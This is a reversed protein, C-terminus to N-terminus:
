YPQLLKVTVQGRTHPSNPDGLLVFLDAGRRVRQSFALYINTGKVVGINQAQNGGNGDQRILRGSITQRPNLRYTGTLILQSSTESGLKQQSFGTSLSLPRTILFNQQLMIFGFPKGAQRGNLLMIGGSQFLTRQNWWLGVERIVDNFRPDTRVQQRNSREFNGSIGRGRRDQVYGSIKVSDRFFSGDRRNYRGIDFNVDYLEIPGRDFNNVQNINGSWGRRDREPVLGLDSASDSGVTDYSLRVNPKGPTGEMNFNLNEMGGRSEGDLFSRSQGGSFIYRYKGSQWGYNGYLRAVRNTPNRSRNDAAFSMGVKSFLGIERAANMVVSTREKGPQRNTATLFGMTTLGSKGAVKVGQDVDEIRRSYFLSVDPMFDSGEAFFPRRDNVFRENYSFNIGTVDQEVTKFDPFLTALGTLTTSIPYKIDLGERASTGDGGTALVYPLFIPRPAYFPPAIGTFDNMYQYKNGDTQGAPPVYPWIHTTTERALRRYLFLGLSKSGRPYRLLRFPIAIEAVWGDATRKTTAKWDGAWTINDATGGEIQATQTGISTVGFWSNNRRTNQSDIDIAVHDDAIINGGRQTESARILEPRSDLCHFAIYLNDKDATIWAETQELIPASSGFRYFGQARTATQWCADDLVGDLTPPTTTTQIKIEQRTWEGTPVPPTPISPALPAATPLAQGWAAGSFWCLRIALATVLITSCKSLM